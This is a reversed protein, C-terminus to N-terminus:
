CLVDRNQISFPSFKASPNHFIRILVFVRNKASGLFMFPFLLFVWLPFFPTSTTICHERKPNTNLKNRPRLYISNHLTNFTQNQKFCVQPQLFCESSLCYSFVFLQLLPPHLLLLPLLICPIFSM